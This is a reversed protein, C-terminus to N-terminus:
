GTEPPGTGDICLAPPPPGNNQDSALHIRLYKAMRREPHVAIQYGHFHVQPAANGPTSM